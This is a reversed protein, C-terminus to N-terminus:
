NVIEVIDPTLTQIAELSSAQWPKDKSLIFKIKYRKESPLSETMMAWTVFEKIGSSNIFDINKCIVQVEKADMEILKENVKTIFPRMIRSPEMMEIRGSLTVVRDNMEMQLGNDNVSPIILAM